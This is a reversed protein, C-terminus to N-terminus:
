VDSGARRNTRDRRRPLPSEDKSCDCVEGAIAHRMLVKQVPLELQPRSDRCEDRKCKSPPKEVLDCNASCCPGGGVELV